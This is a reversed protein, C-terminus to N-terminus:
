EDFLQEPLLARVRQLFSDLEQNVALSQSYVQSTRAEETEIEQIRKAPTAPNRIALEM